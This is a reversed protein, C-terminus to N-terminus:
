RKPPKSTFRSNLNAVALPRIDPFRWSDISKKWGGVHKARRLADVVDRAYVYILREQGRGIGVHAGPVNLRYWSKAGKPAEKPEREM